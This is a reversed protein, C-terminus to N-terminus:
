TKNSNGATQTTTVFVKEIEQATRPHIAESKDKLFNGPRGSMVANIEAIISLAIEEPTEAGIDLGVPGHIKSLQGPTIKMGEDELEGLMRELKKKPGLVGVYPINLPILQRLMALDYHYNHTMLVFATHEDMTIGSLAQEPKAVLLSCGGSFRKSTVYEPRGDIVTINWGFLEAMKVLPFADNGAGAIVLSVPPKLYEFFATTEKKDTIYNKTSSKALCLATAADEGIIEELAEEAITGYRKKNQDILLCTGGQEGQKDNLSFLTVLVAKEQRSFEKLLQIPHQQKKPHIPEILVQIIGRCGLGLGFKADDEDDTNYTVLKAKKEAIVFLAKRLADGELCGGSIAGTISGDDEILMRAGANRYSSGQVHVVTALATEKGEAVAKEFAAIIDKIEKIM